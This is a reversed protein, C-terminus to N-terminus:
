AYASVAYRSPTYCLSDVCWKERRWEVIEREMLCVQGIWPTKTNGLNIQCNAKRLELYKQRRGECPLQDHHYPLRTSRHPAGGVEEVASFIKALRRKTPSFLTPIVDLKWRFSKDGVILYFFWGSLYVRMPEGKQSQCSFLLVDSFFAAPRIVEEIEFDGSMVQRYIHDLVGKLEERSMSIPPLIQLDRFFKDQSM